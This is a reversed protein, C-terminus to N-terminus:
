GPERERLVKLAFFTDNGNSYRKHSPLFSKYIIFPSVRGITHNSRGPSRRFLDTMIPKGICRSGRRDLRSPLPQKRFIARAYHRTAISTKYAYLGVFDLLNKRKSAFRKWAKHFNSKVSSGDITDLCFADLFRLFNNGNQPIQLFHTLLHKTPWILWISGSM